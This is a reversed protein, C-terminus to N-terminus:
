RWQTLLGFGAVIFGFGVFLNWNDIAKIPLAGSSLYYFLLYAVGIAFLAFITYGVWPPSPPRRKPVSAREPATYVSRQRRRSEPM